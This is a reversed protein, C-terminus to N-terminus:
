KQSKPNEVRVEVEEGVAKQIKAEVGRDQLQLVIQQVISEHVKIEIAEQGLSFPKMLTELAQAIAEECDREEQNSPAFTNQPERIEVKKGMPTSIGLRKCKEWLAKRSVGLSNAAQTKNWNAWKLTELLYEREFRNRAEELTELKKPTTSEASTKRSLGEQCFGCSPYGQGGLFPCGNKGCLDWAQIEEHDQAFAVAREVTNELELVNGPFSYGLLMEHAQNSLSKIHHGHKTSCKNLINNSLVLVDEKRERLPPIMVPVINLRYFLDERFRGAEVEKWLNLRTGTILRVDVSVSKTSGIKYIQGEQAVALLKAQLTLPLVEIEDLFVTGGNAKELLGCKEDRANAFIGKAHGFLDSEVLEEQVRRCIFTLFPNERRGSHDHITKAVLEKETGIEGTILVNASSGAVRRILDVVEQIAQSKGQLFLLGDESAM